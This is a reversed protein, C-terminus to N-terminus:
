FSPEALGLGACLLAFAAFIGYDSLWHLWRQARGSAAAPQATAQSASLTPTSM